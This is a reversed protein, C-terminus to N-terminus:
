LYIISGDSNKVIFDSNKVITDWRIMGIIRPTLWRLMVIMRPTIEFIIRPISYGISYGVLIVKPNALESNMVMVM